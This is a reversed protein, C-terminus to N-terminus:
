KITYTAVPYAIDNIVVRIEQKYYKKAQAEYYNLDENITDWLERESDSFGSLPKGKMSQYSEMFLACTGFITKNEAGWCYYYWFPNKITVTKTNGKNAESYQWCEDGITTPLKSVTTAPTHAIGYEVEYDAPLKSEIKSSIVFTTVYDSYSAKIDINAKVIKEIEAKSLSNDDKQGDWDYNEKLWTIDESDFSERKFEVEREVDWLYGGKFVLQRPSYDFAYGLTIEDGDVEYDTEADNYYYDHGDDSDFHNVRGRVVCEQDNIFYLTVNYTDNLVFEDGFLPTDDYVARWRYQQLAAKLDDPSDGNDSCAGTVASLVGALTLGFCFRLIRTTKIM